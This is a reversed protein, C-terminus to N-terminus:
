ALAATVSIDVALGGAGIFAALQATEVVRAFLAAATTATLGATVVTAEGDAAFGGGSLRLLPRELLARGALAVARQWIAVRGRETAPIHRIAHTGAWTAVAIGAGAARASALCARIRLLTWAGATLAVWTGTRAAWTTAAGTAALTLRLTLALTLALVGITVRAICRAERGIM